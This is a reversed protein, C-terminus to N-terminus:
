EVMFGLDKMRAAQKDRVGAINRGKMTQVRLGLGM